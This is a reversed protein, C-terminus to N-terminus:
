VWFDLSPRSTNTFFAEDIALQESDESQHSTGVLGGLSAPGYAYFGHVPSGHRLSSAPDHYFYGGSWDDVAYTETDMSRRDSPGNGSIMVGMDGNIMGDVTLGSGNGHSIELSIGPEDNQMMESGAAAAVGVGGSQTFYYLGSDDIHGFSEYSVTYEDWLDPMLVKYVDAPIPISSQPGDGLITKGSVARFNGDDTYNQGGYSYGGQWTSGYAGGQVLIDDLYLHDGQEPNVIVTGDFPLAAFDLSLFADLDPQSVDVLTVHNYGTFRYIDDGAGGFIVNVGGDDNTLPDIVFTDAGEDGIM